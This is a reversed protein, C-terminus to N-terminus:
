FFPSFGLLWPLALSICRNGTISFGIQDNLRMPFSLFPASSIDQSDDESSAEARYAPGQESDESPDEVEEVKIPDDVTNSFDFRHAPRRSLRRLNSYNRVDEFFKLKKPQSSSTTKKEEAMKLKKTPRSPSSTLRAFFSSILM